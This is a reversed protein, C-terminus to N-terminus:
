NLDVNVLKLRLYIIEYRKIEKYVKVFNEYVNVYCM